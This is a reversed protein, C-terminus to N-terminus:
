DYDATIVLIKTELVGLGRGEVNLLKKFYHYTIKLIIM